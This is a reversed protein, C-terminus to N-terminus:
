AADGVLPSGSYSRYYIAGHGGSGSLGPAGATSGAKAPRAPSELAEVPLPPLEKDERPPPTPTDMPLPDLQLLSILTQQSDRRDLRGPTEM